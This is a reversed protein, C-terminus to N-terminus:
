NKPNSVLFLSINTLDKGMYHLIKFHPILLIALDEHHFFYYCNIEREM